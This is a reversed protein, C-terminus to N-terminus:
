VLGPCIRRTVQSRYALNVGLLFLVFRWNTRIRRTFCRKFINPLSFVENYVKWFGEELESPTLNGPQFVCTAGNYENFDYTLIRGERKWREFLPTGPIPTLMYFRPLTIQNRLVFDITADFTEQSDGEMGLMMESSVNIGAAALQTLMEDYEEAKVFKKGHADLSPTHVSEFGFSLTSCGSRRALDLLEPRKLITLACQGVWRIGLPLLAEFLEQATKPEGGLNDDVLLFEEFGLGRAAEIDRVVEPIPRREYRGDFYAAISCYECSHPCGRGVLVAIMPGVRKNAILDYRPVPLEPWPLARDAVYKKQLAGQEFDRLIQVWVAEGPGVCVADAHELAEDPTLSVMPGGAVVTKGRRRFEDMFEFAHWLAYGMATVAVVDADTDYPINEITEYCLEVEWDDPTLAALVGPGLGPAYLMWQKVPLGSVKSKLTSAIILVKHKRPRTDLRNPHYRALFRRRRYERLWRRGLWLLAAAIPALILLALTTSM